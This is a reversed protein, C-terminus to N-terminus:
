TFLCWDSIAALLYPDNELSSDGANAGAAGACNANGAWDAIGASRIVSGDSIPTNDNIRRLPNGDRGPIDGGSMFASRAQGINDADQTFPYGQVWYLFMDAAVEAACGSPNQRKNPDEWGEREDFGRYNQVQGWLAVPRNAMEAAPGIAESNLARGVPPSLTIVHGFEHILNDVSHVWNPTGGSFNLFLSMVNCLTTRAAESGPSQSVLRLETGGIAQNTLGGLRENIAQVAAYVNNVRPSIWNDKARPSLAEEETLRIDFNLLLDIVKRFCERRQASTPELDSCVMMGSPDTHSVPNGHAYAYGNITAPHDMLGEFPDLSLWTALGPSLHRARHYQTKNESRWEGTFAPGSINVDPVGVPTYNVSSLVVNNADVYGRVSGLGDALPHTWAAGDNVAHIGHPAHVYRNGDSDGLVLALGPQLDLLYQTVNVGSTQAVRDGDGNYAYSVGGLALLRNARDWVYSNVGDGTMNGNADYTLSNTGDHVLQNAANYTRATGNLNTLNGAVDFGYTLVEAGNDYDAAILRSVADYTYRITREDYPVELVELLKFRMVTGTAHPNRVARNHIELLGDVPIPIVREGATPAWCDYSQWLSGGIYVDILSHDPGTGVTLLGEDGTWAIRIRADFQASRKYAGADTWTGRVYEVEPADKGYTAIVTAPQALRESAQTRSGRADVVYDFRARLSDPTGVFHRIRRLHGAPNYRYDSLLGSARQTAVHRGAGDYFFDSAQGDWGTLGVLRGKADYRYAISVEGPLTLRTRLGGADYEYRVTQDTTGDGDSDFAVQTLRRVSDYGYTTQRIPGSAAYESMVARSGAPDYALTVRPTAAAAGYDITIPRGLRDFDRQVGYAGGSALGPFTTTVRSGGDLLAEYATLWAHNLPNTLRTRRGLADYEYGTLSGRPDRLSTMRGGRDYTVQVILNQDSDTGHQIPTGDSQEWRGDNADWVWLAPDQGHAVYSQVVRVRRRLGDYRSLTVTGEPDTGAAVLGDRFYATRATNGAPDTIATQRGALDYEYATILDLDNHAGQSGPNFMWDGSSDKADPSVGTDQWNRIFRAIRGAKDYCTYSVTELLSDAAETVRLRRGLRDYTFTTLTGRADRAASVRGAADYSSDSILNRDFGAGHDLPWGTGDEWRQSSANWEWGAPDTTGLYAQVSRLRRGLADYVYRTIVGGADTESVTRGGKDYSSTTSRDQDSELSSGAYDRLDADASLDYGPSSANQVVKVRRGARDYGYLTTNGYVDVTRVTRGGKDYATATMRDADADNGALYDSLDPDATVDYGPDSANQITKVARGVRDYGYLTVHGLADSTKVVRGAVDYHTQSV